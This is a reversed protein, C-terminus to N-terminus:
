KPNKKWLLNKDPRIIDPENMYKWEEKLELFLSLNEEESLWDTVRSEEVPLLKKTCYKILLEYPIEM